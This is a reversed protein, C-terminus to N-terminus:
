GGGWREAGPERLAVPRGLVEMAVIAAVPDHLDFRGAGVRRKGGVRAVRHGARRADADRDAMEERLGRRARETPQDYVVTVRPPREDFSTPQRQAIEDYDVRRPAEAGGVGRESPRPTQRVARPEPAASPTPAEELGM